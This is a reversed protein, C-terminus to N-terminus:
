INKKYIRVNEHKGDKKETREVEGRECKRTKRSKGSRLKTSIKLEIRMEVNASLANGRAELEEAEGKRGGIRQKEKWM